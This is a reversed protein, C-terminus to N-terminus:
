NGTSNTHNRYYENSEAKLIFLEISCRNLQIKFTMQPETRRLSYAFQDWDDINAEKIIIEPFEKHIKERCRSLAAKFEPSNKCREKGSSQISVGIYGEISGSLNFAARSNEFSPVKSEELESQLIRFFSGAFLSIERIRVRRIM